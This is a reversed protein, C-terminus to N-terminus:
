PTTTPPPSEPSSTTPVRDPRTAAPADEIMKMINPAWIAIAGGALLGVMAKKVNANM